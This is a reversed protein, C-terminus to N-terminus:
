KEKIIFFIKDSIKRQMKEKEAILASVVHLKDASPVKVM